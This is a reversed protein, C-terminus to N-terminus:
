CSLLLSSRSEQSSPLRVKWAECPVNEYKVTTQRRQKVIKLQSLSPFALFAWSLGAFAYNEMTWIALYLDDAPLLIFPYLRLLSSPPPISTFLHHSPPSRPNDSKKRFIQCDSSQKQGIRPNDSRVILPFNFFLIQCDSSLQFLSDSLWLFTSFPFRVILPFNFFLIQCDSSLSFTFTLIMKPQM